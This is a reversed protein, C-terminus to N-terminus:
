NGGIVDCQTFFHQVNALVTIAAFLKRYIISAVLSRPYGAQMEPILRWAEVDGGDIPARARIERSLYM